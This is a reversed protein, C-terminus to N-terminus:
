WSGGGGGGGGGGSFGGGGGSSSSQTAQYASISSSVASDFSSVTSAIAQSTTMGAYVPLWNPSPPEEAMAVKYRNAWDDAVGFAIAFPIYSTYLDKRASFQFRDEASPTTLFRKFGGAKSWLERGATTRRQGTGSAFLGLGGIVYMGFPAAWISPIPVFILVAAVIAAGIAAFAATSEKWAGETYGSSRAWNGVETSIEEQAQKLALGAAVSGDAHFQTGNSLIGLKTGFALTVPDLQKLTASDIQSTITWDSPGDQELRIAKQEALYMLTAVLYDRGPTEDVIYKTQVPGIGAPPEYMLPLGPEVERARRALVYGLVTAALSLLLAIILLAVSSGFVQDWAIGWPRTVQNPASIPMVGAFRVPTNPGLNAASITVMQGDITFRSCEAASGVRCLTEDPAQPLNISIDAKTIPMSWGAALVQWEFRSNKGDPAIGGDVRYAIKFTHIGASLYRDPDGIKAVRFQRGNEWLMEYPADHGNLSISIDRPIYRVHPNKADAIDWYRFIGHRGEPFEAVITEVARVTGDRAVDYRASYDTITVPDPASPASETRPPSFVAPATIGVILVALLVFRVINRIM